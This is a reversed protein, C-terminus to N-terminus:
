AASEKGRGALALWAVVFIWLMTGTAFKVADPIPAPSFFAEILAAVGLMMAAGAILQVAERAHLAVSQQRSMSGRYILGWGLLLGSAGAVVLAILEFSGHSIVFSFFNTGHGSAVVHGSIAGLFMGNVLLQHITGIGFFAGLAFCRFAIGVNNNVYFGAMASRQASFDGEVQGALPREYMEEMQELAEGPLISSALEPQILTGAMAAVFPIGFLCLAVLFFPWRRRLLMPFGIVLFHVADLLNRPPARYLFNHGRAVLHNLYKELQDGWERSRVLSLDYCISRYMRSLEALKASSWRSQRGFRMSSLLREFEQWEPQRRELFRERKM